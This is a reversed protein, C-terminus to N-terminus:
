HIVSIRWGASDSALSARFNAPRREFRGTTANDFEYVGTIVAEATNGQVDASTLSLNAKFNRVSKFFDEWM